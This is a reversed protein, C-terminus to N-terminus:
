NCFVQTDQGINSLLKAVLQLVVISIYLLKNTSRSLMSVIDASKLRKLIFQKGQNGQEQKQSQQQQEDLSTSQKGM